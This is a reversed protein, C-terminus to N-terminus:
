PQHGRPRPSRLHPFRQARDARARQAAWPPGWARDRGRGGLVPTDHHQWRPLAPSLPLLSHPFLGAGPEPSEPLQALGGQRRLVWCQAQHVFLVEYLVFALVLSRPKRTQLFSRYHEGERLTVTVLLHAM